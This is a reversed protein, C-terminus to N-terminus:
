QEQFRKVFEDALAEAKTKPLKNAYALAKIRARIEALQSPSLGGDLAERRLLRQLRVMIETVAVKAANKGVEAALYGVVEKAALLVIPTLFTAAESVGFGLMDDGGRRLGKGARDAEFSQAVAPFLPLEAPALTAVVARALELELREQDAM